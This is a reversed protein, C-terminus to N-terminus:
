GPLRPSSQQVLFLSAREAALRGVPTYWASDQANRAGMKVSSVSARRNKATDEAPNLVVAWPCRGEQNRIRKCTGDGSKCKCAM